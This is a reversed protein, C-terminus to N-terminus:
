VKPLRDNRRYADKGIAWLISLKRRFKRLTREDSTCFTQHLLLSKNGFTVSASLLGPKLHLIFQIKSAQSNLTMSQIAFAYM